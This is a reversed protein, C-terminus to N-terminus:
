IKSLKAFHLMINKRGYNDFMIIAKANQGAGSISLVKGAGFKSHSVRDGSSIIANDNRAEAASEEIPIDDFYNQKAKQPTPKNDNMRAAFRSKVEAQTRKLSPKNSWEVYNEDIEFLFKSPAQYSYEGFRMRKQAYTIFLKQKARTIGVYFLRREEEEEQNDFEAKALPFLGKELGGIFVVPYELGKASHLTMLTVQNGDLNKEDIDSILSVQQLYDNLTGDPNARFFSAIDSLMQQINNWRDLADETNIEKYMALIGTKEIFEAIAKAPEESILKQQYKNFFNAFESASKKARKQLAHNFDAQEFAQLLSIRKQSAYDRLHRLSTQGIGRPPENIVRELSEADQPNVLVKLYASTDKIEKRKYFSTGGIIVYPINSKRLVNEFALSQANTRYLVAFDKLEFGHQLNTNIISVTKLAEEQEDNCHMVDIKAGEDNDTWLTKPIQNINNRIVSDAAGLINKTSRYNQELRVIKCYPYDKQFDLINQIDAGRWRYISQADDGVVCINQHAKALMNIIFYQARNTDQYEDVLIYKFREQYSKLIEQSSRLLKIMNGLLDDFDMANNNLLTKEYVEYIQATQKEFVSDATQTAKHWSILNNKYKSIQSRVQTAQYQEKSIGLEAMVKRVLSLQDDADYISFNSNYGIKEGDFRLIRAFISHFTGAWIREADNFSVMNAIRNKMEKAAKNTFTLALIQWPKVGQEILYAIRNTLVRTKGSGAGAVVLMPGNKHKVAEKQEPNLGNLIDSM